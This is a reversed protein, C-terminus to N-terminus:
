LGFIFTFHLNLALHNKKEKEKEDNLQSTERLWGAGDM